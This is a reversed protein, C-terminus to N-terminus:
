VVLCVSSCACVRPWGCLHVLLLVRLCVCVVLYDFLWDCVWSPLCDFLCVRVDVPLCVCSCM